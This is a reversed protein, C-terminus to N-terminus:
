VNSRNRENQAYVVCDTCARQMTSDHVHVETKIGRKRTAKLGLVPVTTGWVQEDHKKAIDKLQVGSPLKGDDLIIETHLVLIVPDTM